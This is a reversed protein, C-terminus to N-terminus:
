VGQLRPDVWINVSAKAAKIAARMYGAMQPTVTVSMFQRWGARFVASGDTVSGGDVATAYGAPETGATTGATTCFFVRGPNSALKIRDGVSYATTNARATVGADWASVSDAAYVAGASLINTKTSSALSSLPYGAAGLYELDFWIEDNLLAAAGDSLLAFGLTVASGLTPEWVAIPLAEFPAQWLAASACVIKFSYATAGNTAGGTRRVAADLVQSGGYSYRETRYNKGSASDDCNQLDVVVGSGSPITGSFAAVGAGLRCNSFNFTQPTPITGLVLSKGTTLASLDVGRIRAEVTYSNPTSSQQFLNTPLSGLVANPTNEWVFRCNYLALSQLVSGFSVQTNLLRFRQGVAGSSGFQIRNSSTTGNLKIACNVFVIETFLTIVSFFQGGGSTGVNFMVGYIYAAGSFTQGFAGTTAISATTQLDGEGPPVAGNPDVCLVKNPAAATGPFTLTLLSAQTEAHVNSLYIKDGAAAWGSALANALRAHPAGWAASAQYAEKGTVETWDTVTGDTPSAAGATLVWAPEAAGSTGGAATRFCRESGVAPAALQRVIAGAAYVHLAAWQAVATYEVSGVYMDAM